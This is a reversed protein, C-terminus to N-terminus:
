SPPRAPDSPSPRPPSGVSGSPAPSSTAGSKEAAFITFPLKTAASTDSSSDKVEVRLVYSGAAVSAADIAAVGRWGGSDDPLLLLLRGQLARETGAADVVGVSMALARESEMRFGRLWLLVLLDGPSFDPHTSPLVRAENFVLADTENPPVDGKLLLPAADDHREILMAAAIRATEPPKPQEAVSISTAWSGFQPPDQVRITAQVDYHGPPLALRGELRFAREAREVGGPRLRASLNRSYRRVVEGGARAVIEFDIQVPAGEDRDRRFRIPGLAEAVVVVRASADPAPPPLVVATGRVSITRFRALSDVVERGTGGEGASGPAIDGYRGRRATATYGPRKVRVVIKRYKLAPANEPLKCSIRYFHSTEEQIVDFAERYDGQTLLRGGTEGAVVGLVQRRAGASGASMSSDIGLDTLMSEELGLKYAAVRWDIPKSADGLSTDDGLDMSYATVGARALSRILERLGPTFGGEAMTIDGPTTMPFGGSMLVLVHKGPLGQMLDGISRVTEYFKERQWDLARHYLLSGQKLRSETYPVSGRGRYSMVAEALEDEFVSPPMWTVRDIALALEDRDATFGSLARLSMQLEYVAAMDDRGLNREVFDKAAKKAMNMRLASPSNLGDFLLLFSRQEAPAAREGASPEAEPAPAANPVAPKEEPRADPAVGAAERGSPQATRGPSGWEDVAVIELPTGEEFVEFDAATLGTPVKKDPGRVVVDFQSLRVRIKEVIESRSPSTTPDASSNVGGTEAAHPLLSAASGALTLALL